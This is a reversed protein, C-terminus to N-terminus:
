TSFNWWTSCTRRAGVTTRAPCRATASAVINRTCSFSREVRILLVCRLFRRSDMTSRHRNGRDCCKNDTSYRRYSRCQESHAMPLFNDKIPFARSYRHKRACVRVASGASSNIHGLFWMLSGLLADATAFDIFLLM